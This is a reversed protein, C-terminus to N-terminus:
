AVQQRSFVFGLKDLKDRRYQDRSRGNTDVADKQLTYKQNDVWKGLGIGKVEYDKLVNCDGHEQHYDVLLKYNRDWNAM